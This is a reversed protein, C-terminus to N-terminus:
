LTTPRGHRGTCAQQHQLDSSYQTCCRAFPVPATAVACVGATCLQQLLSPGQPLPRLCAGVKTLVAESLNTNSMDTDVMLAGALTKGSLDKGAYSCGRIDLIKDSVANAQLPL